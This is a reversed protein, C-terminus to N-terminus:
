HQADYHLQRPLPQGASAIKFQIVRSLPSGCANSFVGRARQIRTADHPATPLAIATSIVPFYWGISGM